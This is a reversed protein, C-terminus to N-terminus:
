FNELACAFLGLTEFHITFTKGPSDDTSGLTAAEVTRVLFFTFLENLLGLLFNENPVWKGEFALHDM